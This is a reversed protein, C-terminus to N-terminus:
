CIQMYTYYIQIICESFDMFHNCNQELLFVPFIIWGIELLMYLMGFSFPYSKQDISISLEKNFLNLIKSSLHILFTKVRSLNQIEIFDSYAYACHKDLTFYSSTRSQLCVSTMRRSVMHWPSFLLVALFYILLM